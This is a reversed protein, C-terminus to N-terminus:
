FSVIAYVDAQVVHVLFTSYWFYVLYFTVIVSTVTTFSVSVSIFDEVIQVCKLFSMTGLSTLKLVQLM